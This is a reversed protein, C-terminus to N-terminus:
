PQEVMEIPRIEIGGRFKAGLHTGPHLRAIEVAQEIDEAELIFFAGFPERTEAYPGESATVPGGDARLTRAQEPMALSGVMDVHGSAKFAADHPACIRGIEEFDAAGLAAFQDADYHCLCLFKM